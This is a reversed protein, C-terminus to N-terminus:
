KLILEIYSMFLKSAQARTANNGPNLYVKGNDASGNLVGSATAWQMAEVSWSSVKEGDAFASFDGKASTDLKLYGAYRYLITAIQERTIKVDPGFRNDGLGNVIGYKAAWAVSKAYWSDQPVDFFESFGVDESGAYRWLITVLMARTLGGNPDFRGEGVGNMLGRSIAYDMGDHAWHGPEV